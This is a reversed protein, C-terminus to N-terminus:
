INENNDAINSTEATNDMVNINNNVSDSTVSINDTVNINNNNVSNSNETSNNINEGFLAQEPNKGTNINSTDGIASSDKNDPHPDDFTFTIRNNEDLVLFAAFDSGKKSIFGELKDTCRSTLLTKVEDESLERGAIKGIFFKCSKEEGNDEKSYNSCRYGLHGKVIDGGCAPCKVGEIVKNEAEDFVFKLGNIVGNEDKNLGIKAEFKKGTKSKFGSIKSTVGMTVLEKVQTDNLSVGAMKGISFRCSQPNDKDYNKCGYGFSTKVIDGGCIPCPANKVVKAEVKDFDFTIESKGEENKKLVLCADFKKGSKSKFGRITKTEGNTLLEKVNAISLEKGAIKGIAFKCSNPDDAKFNACGYGFSRKLIGGGCDPCVLGEIPDQIVGEFDFGIQVKGEEDKQLVLAAKFKNKTKSVFGDLVKTRGKTILDTFDEEELTKGAIAGVNFKCQNEENWYNSCGYGFSTTTLEGGCVPCKLGLKKRTALGKSDKGTFRNIRDAIQHTMDSAIMSVTEKNIYQELKIRYDDFEVSGNIIGELGKEWSATMQPNLLNPINLSVVEYIMEGLNEPTIIQSKRNQNLYGIRVLKELIEGRTASTGIGSNKIQARLEEDEILNGANEMALILSGSTYRKPPSTKSEKIEFGNVQVKDGIKLRSLADLIDQKSNTDENDDSNEANASKPIGSVEMYGPKKLVKASMNFIENEIIFQGKATAYEAPPYFIALFRKVILEYVSRQLDTLNDVGNYQGTPIIAYHDTVKSDDTYQSNEIGKHLNNDLIHNVYKSTKEYGKLKYLNKGIEKAVATTLVRADTRPYTTFKREYLEQAVQLTEAPSIKYIKSCESQLEALNFLFPAKKRSTGMEVNLVEAPKGSLMDILQSATEKEKFGNEKYLAPTQFYKSKENVKWEASIGADTFSGAVRYFPTEIFDRIERERNVVMGLVCTMVRGIAIATYSKTAAADNILKGYKVSLVRSFNIGLAYDEITRMIGSKGLKDYDSMDKAQAIGRKIEDDTQSDIWVRLEKMGQRVGGYNRINEEITQGEKGSDGAWYVTEIDERHLLRNILDYQDKSKEIVGYKYDKPLFPLDELNWKKYKIDYEEPYVMEVLHGFCWSIVYENNEIFGNGKGNVGLVRAFDRAVSPKETIILKKGM